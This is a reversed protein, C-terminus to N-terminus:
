NKKKHMKRNRLCHFQKLLPLFNLVLLLFLLQKNFFELDYKIRM